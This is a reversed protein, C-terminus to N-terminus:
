WGTSTIPMIIILYIACVAFRMNVAIPAAALRDAGFDFTRNESVSAAKEPVVM